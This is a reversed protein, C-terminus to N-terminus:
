KGDEEPDMFAKLNHDSRRKEEPPLQMYDGYLGRLYTEWGIPAPYTEGEFSMPVTGRFVEIPMREKAGYHTVTVVGAYKAKKLNGSKAARDLANAWSASSRIASIKMIIKKMWQLREGKYFYGSRRSCKLMIDISRIRKFFLNSLTNNAPLADIPFVDIFLHQMGTKVNRSPLVHSKLDWIRIWPMIYGETTRCHAVAYRENMYKPAAELFREFDPRLMMLDADDDWPIFGQHRVAGLLTGGSLFYQIDEERCIHDVLKLMERLVDQIEKLNM